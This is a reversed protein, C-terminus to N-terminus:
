VDVPVTNLHVPLGAGEELLRDQVELISSIQLTVAIQEQLSGYIHDSEIDRNVGIHKILETCKIHHSQCDIESM